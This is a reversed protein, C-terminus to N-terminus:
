GPTDKDDSFDSSTGQSLWPEHCFARGRPSAANRVTLTTKCHKKSTLLSECKINKNTRPCNVVLSQTPALPLNGWFLYPRAHTKLITHIM